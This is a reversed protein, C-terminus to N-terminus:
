PYQCRQTVALGWASATRYGWCLDMSSRLDYAKRNYWFFYITTFVLASVLMTFFIYEHLMEHPPRWLQATAAYSDRLIIGHTVFDIACWVLFISITTLILRKM